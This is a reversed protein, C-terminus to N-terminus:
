ILSKEKMSIVMKISLKAKMIRLMVMISIEKLNLEKTRQTFEKVTSKMKVSNEMM